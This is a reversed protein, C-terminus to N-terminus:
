FREKPAGSLRATNKPFGGCRDPNCSLLAVIFSLVVSMSFASAWAYEFEVRTCEPGLACSDYKVKAEM